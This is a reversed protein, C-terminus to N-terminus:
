PCGLESADVAHDSSCQWFSCKLSQLTSTPITLIDTAKKFHLHFEIWSCTALCLLPRGCPHRREGTAPAGTMESSCKCQRDLEGPLTASKYDAVGLRPLQRDLLWWSNRQLATAPHTDVEGRPQHISLGGEPRGIDLASLVSWRRRATAQPPWATHSRQDPAVALTIGTACSSMPDRHRVIAELEAGLSDVVPREGVYALSGETCCWAMTRGSRGTAARGAAAQRWRPTM